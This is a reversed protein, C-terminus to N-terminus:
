ARAATLPGGVRGAVFARPAIQVERLSSPLRCTAAAVRERSQALGPQRLIAFNRYCRACRRRRGPLVLILSVRLTTPDGDRRRRILAASAPSAAGATRRM